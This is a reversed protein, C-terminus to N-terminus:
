ETDETPVDFAFQTSTVFVINNDKYPLNLLADMTIKAGSAPPTDFNIGIKGFDHMTSDGLVLWNPDYAYDRKDQYNTTNEHYLNNAALGGIAKVSTFGQMYGAYCYGNTSRNGYYAPETELSRIRWYQATIADFYQGKFAKTTDAADISYATTWTIGDDSYDINFAPIKFYVSAYTSSWGAIEAYQQMYIGYRIHDLTIGAADYYIVACYCGPATGRAAGEGISGDGDTASPWREEAYAANISKDSLPLNWWYVRSDGNSPVADGNYIGETHVVTNDTADATEYWDVRIAKNWLPSKTCDFNVFNHATSEGDVYVVTSVTENVDTYFQTTEGNGTGIEIANYYYPPLLYENPFPISGIGTFSISHMFGKGIYAQELRANLLGRTYPITNVNYDTLMGPSMNVPGCPSLNFDNFARASAYTSDADIYAKNYQVNINAYSVPLSHLVHKAQTARTYTSFKGAYPSSIPPLYKFNFFKNAKPFKTSFYFTVTVNLIDFSTKSIIIPEGESDVLLAKSLYVNSYGYAVGTLEGVYATTAPFTVVSQFAVNNFKADSILKFDPTKLYFASAFNITGDENTSATGLYLRRENSDAQVCSKIYQANDAINYCDVTQKIQNTRSDILEITYKNHITSVPTNLAINM